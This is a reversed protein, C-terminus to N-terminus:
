KENIKDSKETETTAGKRTRAKTQKQGIQEIATKYKQQYEEIQKLYNERLELLLQKQELLENNLKNNEDQLVENQEKLQKISKKFQKSEEYADHLVNMQKEKNKVEENLDAIQTELENSIRNNLFTITEDLSSKTQVAEDREKQLINLKQQLEMILRDKSNLQADFATKVTDTINQNDELSGMFMRTIASTYQEFKEIEAKSEKLITKSSQFEYTEILKALAEQQNGGIKNSIEKFKEATEDDIRFSKPKLEGNAM